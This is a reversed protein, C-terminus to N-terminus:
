LTQTVSSITVELAARAWAFRAKLKDFDPGTSVFAATGEVLFGTGPGHSGEVERSGVTLLVKPNKAINAETVNMYGAPILLNGQGNIEIYSNWTNVLHPGNEGQTAIAVVGEHKLVEKMKEPIM